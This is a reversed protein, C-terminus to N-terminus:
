PFNALFCTHCNLNAPCVKLGQTAIKEMLKEFNSACVCTVKTTLIEIEAQADKTSTLASTTLVEADVSRISPTQASSSKISTLTLTKSSLSASKIDVQEVTQKSLREQFRLLVLKHLDSIRNQFNVLKKKYEEVLADCDKEKQSLAMKLRNIEDKDLICLTLKAM